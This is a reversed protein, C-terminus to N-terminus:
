YRPGGRRESIRTEERRPLPPGPRESDSPVVRGAIVSARISLMEFPPAFGCPPQEVGLKVGTEGRQRFAAGGRQLLCRDALLRAIGGRASPEQRRLRDDEKGHRFVGCSASWHCSGLSQVDLHICSLAHQTTLVIDM